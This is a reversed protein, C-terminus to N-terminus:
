LSEEIIVFNNKLLFRIEEIDKSIFQNISYKNKLKFEKTIEQKNQYEKIYILDKTIKNYKYLIYAKKNM